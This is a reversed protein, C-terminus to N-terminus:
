CKIHGINIVYRLPELQYNRRCVNRATLCLSWLPCLPCGTILMAWHCWVRASSILFKLNCRVLAPRQQTQLKGGGGGGRTLPCDRSQWRCCVTSECELDWWLEGDTSNEGKREQVMQCQQEEATIVWEQQACLVRSPLFAALQLLTCSASISPLFFAFGGTGGAM